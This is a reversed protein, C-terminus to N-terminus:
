VEHCGVDFRSYRGILQICDTMLCTQIPIRVRTREIVATEWLTDTRTDVLDNTMHTETEDAQGARPDGLQSM